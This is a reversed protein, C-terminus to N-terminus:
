EASYVLKVFQQKENVYKRSVSSYLCCVSLILAGGCGIRQDFGKFRKGYFGRTLPRSLGNGGSVRPRCNKTIYGQATEWIKEWLRISFSEM